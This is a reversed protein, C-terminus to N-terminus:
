PHPRDPKRPQLETGQSQGSQISSTSKNKKGTLSYSALPSAFSPSALSSASSSPPAVARTQNTVLPSLGTGSGSGSGTSHTLSKSTHLQPSDYLNPQQQQQQYIQAYSTQTSISLVDQSSSSRLTTSNVRTGDPLLRGTQTIPTGERSVEAHSNLYPTHVEPHPNQYTAPTVVHTSHRRSSFSASSIPNIEDPSVRRTYQYTPPSSSQRSSTALHNPAQPLIPIAVFASSTPVLAAPSSNSHVVQGQQILGPDCREKSEESNNIKHSHPSLPVPSDRFVAVPSDRYQALKRESGDRSLEGTARNRLVNGIRPDSFIADALLPTSVIHDTLVAVHTNVLRKFHEPDVDNKLAEMTRKDELATRANAEEIDMRKLERWIGFGATAFAFVTIIPYNLWVPIHLNPAVFNMVTSGGGFGGTFYTVSAIFATVLKTAM